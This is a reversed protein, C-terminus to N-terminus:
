QDRIHESITKQLYLSLFFGIILIGATVLVIFAELKNIPEYMESHDMGAVIM